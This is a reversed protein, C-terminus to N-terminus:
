ALLLIVVGATPADEDGGGGRGGGLAVSGDEGDADVVRLQAASLHDLRVAGGGGGGDEGDEPDQVVRELPSDPGAGVGQYLRDLRGVVGDLPRLQPWRRM